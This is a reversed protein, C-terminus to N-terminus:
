MRVLEEFIDKITVTCNLDVMVVELGLILGRLRRKELSSLGLTRLQEECSMGELGKVLKTAKRQVYNM